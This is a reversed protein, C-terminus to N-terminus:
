LTEGGMIELIKRTLNKDKIALVTRPSKGIALGLNLKTGFVYYKLENKNAILKFRDKISCSADEAILLLNYSKLNSSLLTNQGSLIKGAKQALGLINYVRKEIMGIIGKLNM